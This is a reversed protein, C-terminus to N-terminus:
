AHKFISKSVVMTLIQLSHHLPPPSIGPPRFLTFESMCQCSTILCCPYQVHILNIQRHNAQLLIFCLFHVSLSAHRTGLSFEDTRKSVSTPIRCTSM